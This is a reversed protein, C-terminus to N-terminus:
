LTMDLRNFDLFYFTIFIYLARVSYLKFGTIDQSIQKVEVPFSIAVCDGYNMLVFSFGGGSILIM